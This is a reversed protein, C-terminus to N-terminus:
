LERAMAVASAPCATTFEVSARVPAAVTERPVVQFGFRTFFETATETLLYLTRIGHGRALAIAADTVQGGLGRGRHSVEVAVSRLLGTAGYPEIAACGV